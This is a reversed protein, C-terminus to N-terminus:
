GQIFGSVEPATEHPATEHPTSKSSTSECPTSERPTSKHSLARDTFPQPSAKRPPAEHPASEHIVKAFYESCRQVIAPMPVIEDFNRLDVIHRTANLPNIIMVDMWQGYVIDQPLYRQREYISSRLIEDFASFTVKHIASASHFASSAM